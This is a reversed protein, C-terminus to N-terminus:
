QANAQIKEVTTKYNWPLFLKPNQLVAKRHLSLITFYEFVDAECLECTYSLSLLIDSVMAGHETAHFLSNKRILVKKKVAREDANNDLPADKHRTFLSLGEYHRLFYKMAKGLNSNPEVTGIRSNERKRPPDNFGPPHKKNKAKENLYLFCLKRIRELIPLSREKHFLLRTEPDVGQEKLLADHHWVRALRKIILTILNPHQELVRYFQRRAHVLCRAEEVFIKVSSDLNNGALADAMLVPSPLEEPRKLLIRSVAHGAQKEDTIFLAIRNQNLLEALLVSTHMNVPKKGSNQMLVKMRTDDAYLVKAESALGMLYNFVPWARDAMREMIEFLTSDSLNVGFGSFLGQLRYLPVGGKLHLTPILAHVSDDYKETGAESPMPACFVKRCGNCQHRKKVYIVVKLASQATFRQESSPDIERISSKKCEPCIDKSKLEDEVFVKEANKHVSPPNPGHGPKKKGKDKVLNHETKSFDGAPNEAKHEEPLHETKEGFFDRLMVLLDQEKNEFAAKTTSAIELAALAIEASEVPMSARIEEKLQSLKESGVSDFLAAATAQEPFAKLYRKRRRSAKGM